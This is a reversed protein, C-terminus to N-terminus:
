SVALVNGAPFVPLLRLSEQSQRRNCAEPAAAM